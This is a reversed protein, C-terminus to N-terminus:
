HTRRLSTLRTAITEFTDEIQTDTVAGLFVYDSAESSDTASSCAIFADRLTQTIAAEAIVGIVYVDIGTAKAASCASSRLSAMSHGLVLTSYADTDAIIDEGDTLLVLVKHVSLYARDNPNVPHTGGGWLTRWDPDLMRAGWAIGPASYTRRGEVGSYTLGQILTRLSAADTSLPIMSPFSSDCGYQLRDSKVDHYATTASTADYCAMWQYDAHTPEICAYALGYESPYMWYPIPDAATPVLTSVGTPVGGSNTALSRQDLCGAWTEGPTDPLTQTVANSASETYAWPARYTKTAPLAVYGATDWTSRLTTGLRVMREWPVVGMAVPGNGVDLTDLMAEAARKVVAIRTESSGSVADKMSHSVDIALVVEVAKTRVESGAKAVMEAPGTVGYLYRSLLTGGTDASVRVAIAGQSRSITLDVTVEDAELTKSPANELVNYRAYREALTTLHTKVEADTWSEPLTKMEQVAAVSAAEAAGRLLDRQGVMWLHDSVLATGGLLMVAVAAATLATAGGRTSRAFRALSALLPTALTRLRRPLTHPM